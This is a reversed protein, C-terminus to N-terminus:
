FLLSIPIYWQYVIVVLTISDGFQLHTKFVLKVIM